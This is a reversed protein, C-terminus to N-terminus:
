PKKKRVPKRPGQEREARQFMRKMGDADSAAVSPKTEERINIMSIFANDVRTVIACFEELADGYLELDCAAYERIKSRPIPGLAMGIQRESSLEDFAM